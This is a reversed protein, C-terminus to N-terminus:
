DERNSTSRSGLRGNGSALRATRDTVRSAYGLLSLHPGLGALPICMPWGSLRRMCGSMTTRRQMRAANEASCIGMSAALSIVSVRMRKVRNLNAKLGATPAKSNTAHYASHMWPVTHMVRIRTEAGLRESMHLGGGCRLECTWSMDRPLHGSPM